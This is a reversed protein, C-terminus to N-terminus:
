IGTYFAPVVIREYKGPITYNVRIGLNDISHM